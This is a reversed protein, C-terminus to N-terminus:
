DDRRQTDSGGSVAGGPRVIEGELTVVTPRPGRRNADLARRATTLNDVIWVRNLMQQVAPAVAADYGVLDAANGLVGPM